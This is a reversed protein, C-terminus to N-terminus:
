TKFSVDDEEADANQKKYENEAEALFQKVLDRSKMSSASSVRGTAAGDGGLEEPKVRSPENDRDKEDAKKTVIGESLSRLRQELKEIEQQEFDGHKKEIEM